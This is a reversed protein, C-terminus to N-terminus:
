VSLGPACRPLRAPAGGTAVTNAASCSAPKSRMHVGWDSPPSSTSGRVRARTISSIEPCSVAAPQLRAFGSSRACRQTRKGFSPRQALRHGRHSRPSRLATQGGSSAHGRRTPIANIPARGNNAIAVVGVPDGRGRYDLSVIWRPYLTTKRGLLRKLERGREQLRRVRALHRRRGQGSRYSSPPSCCRADANGAPSDSM